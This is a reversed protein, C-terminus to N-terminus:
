YSYTVDFSGVYNGDNLAGAVQTTLSAGFLMTSPGPNGYSISFPTALTRPNNGGGDLSTIFDDLVLTDTGDTPNTVNDIEVNITAGPAGDAIEIEAATAATDDIIAANVGNGGITSATLTGDTAISIIADDTGPTTGGIAIFSGFNLPANVTLTLDNSVVATAGVTVTQAEVNQSVSVSLLIAASALLSKKLTNKM